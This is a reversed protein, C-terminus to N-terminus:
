KVFDLKAIYLSYQTRCSNDVAKDVATTFLLQDKTGGMLLKPYEYFQLEPVTGIPQLTGDEAIREITIGEVYIPINNVWAMKMIPIHGTYILEKVTRTEGTILDIQNLTATGALMDGQTVFAIDPHNVQGPYSSRVETIDWDLVSGVDKIIRGNTEGPILRSTSILYIAALSYGEGNSIAIWRAAPSIQLFIFGFSGFDPPVLDQLSLLSGDEENILVLSSYQSNASNPVYVDRGPYWYPSNVLPQPAEPRWGYDLYDVDGIKHASEGFTMPVKWIQHDVLLAGFNGDNSVRLNAQNRSIPPEGNKALNELGQVKEWAGASLDLRWLASQGSVLARSGTIRDLWVEIMPEPVKIVQKEQGDANAKYLQGEDVWLLDGDPFWEFRHFNDKGNASAIWHGNEMSDLVYLAEELSLEYQAFERKTVFEIVWWRGDPSPYAANVPGDLGSLRQFSSVTEWQLDSPAPLDFQLEEVPGEYCIPTPPPNTASPTFGPPFSTPTFTETYTPTYNPIPSPTESLEITAIPQSSQPVFIPACNALLIFLFLLCLMKISNM